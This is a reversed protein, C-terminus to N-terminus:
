GLAGVWGSNAQRLVAYLRATKRGKVFVGKGSGIKFRARLRRFCLVASLASTSYVTYPLTSM